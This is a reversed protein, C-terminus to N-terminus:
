SAARQGPTIAVPRAAGGWARLAHRGVGARRPGHGSAAANAAGRGIGAPAAEGRVTGNAGM